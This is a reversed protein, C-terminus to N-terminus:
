HCANYGLTWSFISVTFPVSLCTEKGGLPRGWGAPGSQGVTPPAYWSGAKGQFELSTSFLSWEDPRSALLGKKQSLDCCTKTTWELDELSSEPSVPCAGKWRELLKVRSALVWTDVWAWDLTVPPFTSTLHPGLLAPPLPLTSVGLSSGGEGSASCKAVWPGRGQFALYGERGWGMNGSAPVGLLSLSM